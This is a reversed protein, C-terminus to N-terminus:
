RSFVEELWKRYPHKVIMIEPGDSAIIPLLGPDNKKCYELFENWHEPFQWRRIPQQQSTAAPTALASVAKEAAKGISGMSLEDKKKKGKVLIFKIRVIKRGEKITEIKFSFDAKPRGSEDVADMEKKAQAIVRRAFEKYESYEKQEIGLIERLEALDFERWGISAYQRLLMYIRITYKGSFKTITELECITFESKLHLLYPKLDPMFSLAVSGPKHEARCLWHIHLLNGSALRISIVRTMLQRTIKAIENYANALDIGMLQSLEKLSIDYEHLDDDDKELKSILSFILRQELNTLKYRAEVLSNSQVVLAKRKAM